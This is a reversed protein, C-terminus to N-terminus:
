GSCRAPHDHYLVGQMVEAKRLCERYEWAPVSDAVIGAGAHFQLRGEPWRFLSRILINFDLNGRSDLYGLSGTYLGRPVPEMQRLLQMCRIKPCGTITGGPFMADLIDWPTKAPAKEGEVQSVIHTVHSYRELECLAPVTVSGPVSVRGLDNRELDLLMMHEAQEKADTQLVRAIASEEEPTKGRGRTGAIPRTELRNTPADYKVLREPSNSLVVGHPTWFLGSFPSPNRHVLEDYLSLVRLEPMGKAEFRMSLNAQYIEGNRIREQLRLVNEEFAEKSMSVVPPTIAKPSAWPGPRIFGENQVRDEVMNIWQPDPSDVCCIGSEPSWRIRHRFRVFYLDGLPNEVMRRPVTPELLHNLEYGLTGIWGDEFGVPSDKVSIKPFLTNLRQWLTEKSDILTDPKGDVWLTGNLLQVVTQAEFGMLYFGGTKGALGCSDLLVSHTYDPALTYYLARFRELAEPTLQTFM